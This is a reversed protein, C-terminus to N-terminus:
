FGHEVVPSAVAILLRGVAVLPAEAQRRDQAQGARDQGSSQQPLNNWMFVSSFSKIQAM